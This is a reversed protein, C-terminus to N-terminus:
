AKYNRMAAPKTFEIFNIGSSKSIGRFEYYLEVDPDGTREPLVRTVQAAVTATDFYKLISVRKNGEAVYYRNMYEYLQVPDRIGEELHSQCLQM